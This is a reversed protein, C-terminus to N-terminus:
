GGNKLVLKDKNFGLILAGIPNFIGYLISSKQNHGFAKALMYCIYINIFYAGIELYNIIDYVQGAKKIWEVGQGALVILVICLLGFGFLALFIAFCIVIAVIILAKLVVFISSVKIKKCLIVDSYIPILAKWGKENIKKFIKYRAILYVFSFCLGLFVLIIKFIVGM